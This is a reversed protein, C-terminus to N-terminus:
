FLSNFSNLDFQDSFWDLDSGQVISASLDSMSLPSFPIPVTSFLNDSSLTASFDIPLHVNLPPVPEISTNESIEPPENLHVTALPGSSSSSPISRRLVKIAREVEAHTSADTSSKRKSYKADTPHAPYSTSHSPNYQNLSPNNASTALPPGRKQIQEEILSTLVTVGKAAICSHSQISRFIEIASLVLDLNSANASSSPQTDQRYAYEMLLIVGAAVSHALVTWSQRFPEFTYMKLRLIIRTANRVCTERSQKYRPDRFARGLFPRNLVIMKHSSSMLYTSRQWELWPPSNPPLPLINDDADYRMWSPAKALISNAEDNIQLVRSYTITKLGTGHGEFLKHVLIALRSLQISHWVMVPAESPSEELTSPNMLDADSCRLPPPCNFQSTSLACSRNFPLHFFDQMLLQYFVRKCVERTILAQRDMPQRSQNSNTPHKSLPYTDPGLHSINLTQAIRIATALMTFYLDSKGLHNAPSVIIAVCQVSYLSHSGMWDAEHLCNICTDFWRKMVSHVHEKPIMLSLKEEPMHHLASMLVGYFLALWATNVEVEGTAGEAWFADCEAAFTPAHYACHHWAVMDMDWQVLKRGIEETPLYTMVGQKRKGSSGRRSASPERRTAASTSSRASSSGPQMHSTSSFPASSRRFQASQDLSPGISPKRSAVPNLQDLPTQEMSARASLRNSGAQESPESVSSVRDPDGQVSSSTSTSRDDDAGGVFVGTHKARSRGMALFELTLAADAEADIEGDEEEVKPISQSNTAQFLERAAYPLPFASSSQFSSSSPYPSTPGHYQMVSRIITELTDIRLSLQQTTQETTQRLEEIQAQAQRNIGRVTIPPEKVTIELRCESEKGRKICNECPITKNCRTKRRTCETCSLAQRQSKRPGGDRSLGASPERQVRAPPSQSCLDMSLNVNDEMRSHFTSSSYSGTPSESSVVM